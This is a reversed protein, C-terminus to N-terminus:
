LHAIYEILQKAEKDTFKFWEGRIHNDKYKIHLSKEITYPYEFARAYLISTKLPNAVQIHKLRHEVNWAVGIKYYYPESKLIYVNCWKNHEKFHNQIDSLLEISDKGEVSIGEAKALNSLETKIEKQSFM